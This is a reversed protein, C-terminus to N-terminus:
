IGRVGKKWLPFLRPVRRAYDDYTAGFHARLLREERSARWYTGALYVLAGLATNLATAFVLGTALLLGLLASYIPHRVRGFPGSQVLEHSALVRATLSWQKGLERIALVAFAASAFGLFIALFALAAQAEGSLNPLFALKGPHGGSWVLAFGAGQLALGGWSQLDRRPATAEPALRRQQLRAALLAGGLLMWSCLVAIVALSAVGQM